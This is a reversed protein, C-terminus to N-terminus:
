SKMPAAIMAPATGHEVQVTVPEARGVLGRVEVPLPKEGLAVRDQHLPGLAGPRIEWRGGPAEPQMM